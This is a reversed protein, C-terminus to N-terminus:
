GVVDTNLDLGFIVLVRWFILDVAFDDEDM